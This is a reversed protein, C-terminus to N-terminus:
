LLKKIKRIAKKKAKDISNKIQSGFSKIEDPTVVMIDLGGTYLDQSAEDLSGVALDLGQRLTVHPPVKTGQEGVYRIAYDSGSGISTWVREEIRGLPWCTFLRPKGDYRTALLLGNSFEGDPVRYNWREMNIKNLEELFGKETATKINIDGEIIGNLFDIYAQDYIGTM